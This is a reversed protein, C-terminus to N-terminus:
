HMEELKNYAEYIVKKEGKDQSNITSFLLHSIKFFIDFNFSLHKELTKFDKYFYKIFIFLVCTM